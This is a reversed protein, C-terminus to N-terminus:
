AEQLFRIITQRIKDQYLSHGLGETEIYHSNKWQLSIARSAKVPVITDEKDHILLGPVTIEKAFTAGSFEEFSFGYKSIIHQELAKMVRNSLGLLKQYDQMIDSLESASGLVAMRQIHEPRYKNYHYISTLGGISHAVQYVPKYYQTVVELAGAYLAVNMIVGESGGHAPADFACIAFDNEQLDTILKWWRHTNSEWGHVLLVLPGRGKWFYTQIKKNEVVLRQDRAATLLPEQEQKIRGGRVTCFVNFAQKASATINFIAIVNLKFGIGKTILKM